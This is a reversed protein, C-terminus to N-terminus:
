IKLTTILECKIKQKGSKV